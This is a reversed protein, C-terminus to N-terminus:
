KQRSSGAEAQFDKLKYKKGGRERKGLSQRGSKSTGAIDEGMIKRVPQTKVEAELSLVNPVETPEDGGGDDDEDDDDELQHSNRKNLKSLKDLKIARKIEQEDADENVYIVRQKKGGNSVTLTTPQSTRSPLPTSSNAIAVPKIITVFPTGCSSCFKPRAVTSTPNGCAQCYETFM